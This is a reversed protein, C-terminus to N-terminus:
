LNAQNLWYMVGAILGILIVPVLLLFAVSPNTVRAVAVVVWFYPVSICTALLAIRASTWKIHKTYDKSVFRGGKTPRAFPNQGSM